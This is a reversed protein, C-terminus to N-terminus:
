HLAEAGLLCSRARSGPIYLLQEANIDVQERVDVAMVLLPFFDPRHQRCWRLLLDYLQTSPHAWLQAYLEQLLS